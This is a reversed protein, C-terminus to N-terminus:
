HQQSFFFNEVAVQQADDAYPYDDVIGGKAFYQVMTKAANEDTNIELLCELLKQAADDDLGDDVQDGAADPPPLLYHTPPSRANDVATDLCHSCDVNARQENPMHEGLLELVQGYLCKMKKAASLCFEKMLQKDESIKGCWNKRSFLLVTYVFIGGVMPDAPM